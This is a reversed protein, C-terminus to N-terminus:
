KRSFAGALVMAGGIGSLVSALIVGIQVRTLYEVGDAEFSLTGLFLSMTFGIGCLISVGYMMRWTTHTPLTVYRFRVLLWAVLFVGLQKGIFLGVIIGIATDSMIVPWTVEHFSIGANVFAFLPMIFYGVWPHLRQELSHLPSSEKTETVPITLAVLVGSLSPHIGSKLLCYWVGMGLLLYIFLWSVRFNNLMTLILMFIVAGTVFAWSIHQSYVTAIIIIAGVDDFIALSLLFLKLGAPIRRGFLSLVGVAFAIDTAMPIAWGKISIPNQYNILLYLLAPLLMGGLAALASLLLHSYHATKEVLLGRKLELGVVLFFIAMLGENVYFLANQVFLQYLNSLPSNALIIALLTMSLLVISSAAELKLFQHIVKIM